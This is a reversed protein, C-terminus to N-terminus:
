LPLNRRLDKGFSLTEIESAKDQETIYLDPYYFVKKKKEQFLLKERSEIQHKTNWKGAFLRM